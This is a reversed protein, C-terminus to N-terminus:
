REQRPVEPKTAECCVYLPFRLLSVYLPAACGPLMTRDRAGCKCEELLAYNVRVLARRLEINLKVRAHLPIRKNVNFWYSACTRAALFELNPYTAKGVCTANYMTAERQLTEHPRTTADRSSENVNYRRTLVRMALSICDQQSSLTLVQNSSFRLQPTHVRM